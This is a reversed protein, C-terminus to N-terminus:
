GITRDPILHPFLWWPRGLVPDEVIKQLEGVVLINEMGAHHTHPKLSAELVGVHLPYKMANHAAPRERTFPRTSGSALFFEGFFCVAVTASHGCALVIMAGGEIVPARLM